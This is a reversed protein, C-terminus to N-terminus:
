DRITEPRTAREQSPATAIVTRAAPFPIAAMEAVAKDRMVGYILTFAQARPFQRIYAAWRGVDRLIQSRWGLHYRPMDLDTRAAPGVRLRSERNLRAQQFALRLLM